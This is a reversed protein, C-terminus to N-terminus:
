LIAYRNRTIFSTLIRDSSRHLRDNFPENWIPSQVVSQECAPGKSRSLNGLHYAKEKRDDSVIACCPGFFTPSYHFRISVAASPHISQYTSVCIGGLLSRGSLLGGELTHMGLTDALDAGRSVEVQGLGQLQSALGLISALRDWVKRAHVLVADNAVREVSLGGHLLNLLVVGQGENDVDLGVLVM